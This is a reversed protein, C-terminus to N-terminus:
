SELRRIECKLDYIACIDYYYSEPYVILRIDNFVFTVQKNNEKAKACAEKAADYITGFSLIDLTIM